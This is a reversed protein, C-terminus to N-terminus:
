KRFPIVEGDQCCVCGKVHIIVLDGSQTIYIYDYIGGSNLRFTPLLCYNDILERHMYQKGYDYTNIDIYM